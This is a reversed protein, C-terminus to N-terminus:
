AIIIKDDDDDDNQPPKEGHSCFLSNKEFKKGLKEGLGKGGGEKLRM